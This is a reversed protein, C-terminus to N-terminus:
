LASAIRNYDIGKQAPVEPKIEERKDPIVIFGKLDDVFQKFQLLQVQIIEMMDDSQTGNRLANELKRSKNEFELLISEKNMNKSASLAPTLMNAGFAVTSGEWMKIENVLYVRDKGALDKPNRIWTLMEDWQPTNVELVKMRDWVYQFGISHNDYVEDLYNILTDNGLQTESMKTEFYIGHFGDEEREELVMIKGPMREMDHFMCHKIKAISKSAPGREKISKNACGPRLIDSDSDVANFTNYFGTVMRSATDVDKIIGKLSCDKVAYHASKAKREDLTM